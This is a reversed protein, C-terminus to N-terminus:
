SEEPMTFLKPNDAIVKEKFAKDDLFEVEVPHKFCLDREDEVFHVLDLVRTDWHEPYSPGGGPAFYVGVPAAAVLAVVAARGLWARM